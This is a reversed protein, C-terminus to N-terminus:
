PVSGVLKDHHERQPAALACISLRSAIPDVVVDVGQEPDAGPHVQPASVIKL